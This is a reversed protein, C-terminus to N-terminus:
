EIEIVGCFGCTWKHSPGPNFLIKSLIYHDQLLPCQNIPYIQKAREQLDKMCSQFTTVFALTLSHYDRLDKLRAKIDAESPTIPNPDKIPQHCNPCTNLPVM